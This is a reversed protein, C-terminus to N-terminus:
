PTSEGADLSRTERSEDDIRRLIEEAARRLGPDTTASAYAELMTRIDASAADRLESLVQWQVDTNPDDLARAIERHVDLPAGAIATGPDFPMFFALQKAAIMRIEPYGSGLAEVIVPWGRSDGLRALYGSALPASIYGDLPDDLFGILREMADKPGIRAIAYAAEVKVLDDPSTTLEWLRQTATRESMEGLVHAAAAQLVNVNSDLTRLLEQTAQGIGNAKLIERNQFDEFDAYRMDPPPSPVDLVLSRHQPAASNGASKPM